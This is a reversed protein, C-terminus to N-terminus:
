MANYTSYNSLLLYKSCVCTLYKGKRSLYTPFVAYSTLNNRKFVYAYTGLLYTSGVNNWPMNKPFINIVPIYTPLKSSIYLYIISINFTSSAKQQVRSNKTKIFNCKPWFSYMLLQFSTNQICKFSKCPCPSLMLFLLYSCIYM